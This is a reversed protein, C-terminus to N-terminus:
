VLNELYKCVKSQNAKLVHMVSDRHAAVCVLGKNHFYTMTLTVILYKHLWKCDFSNFYIPNQMFHLLISKSQGKWDPAPALIPNFRVTIVGDSQIFWMHSESFNLPTICGFAWVHKYSCRSQDYPWPDVKLKRPRCTASQDVNTVILQYRMVSELQVSSMRSHRIFEPYQCDNPLSPLLM